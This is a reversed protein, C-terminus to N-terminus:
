IPVWLRTEPRVPWSCARALNFAVRGEGEYTAPSLAYLDESKSGGHARYWKELPSISWTVLANAEGTKSFLLM